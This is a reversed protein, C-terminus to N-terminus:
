DANPQWIWVFAADSLRKDVPIKEMNRPRRLPFPM